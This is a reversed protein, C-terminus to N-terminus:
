FKQDATQNKNVSLNIIKLFNYNLVKKLLFNHNIGQIVILVKYIIEKAKWIFIIKILFIDQIIILLINVTLKWKIKEM